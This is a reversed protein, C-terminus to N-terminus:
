GPGGEVLRRSGGPPAQAHGEAGASLRTPKGEYWRRPEDKARHTDALGNPDYRTRRKRRAQGTRATAAAYPAKMLDVYQGRYVSCFYGSKAPCINVSLRCDNAATAAKNIESTM